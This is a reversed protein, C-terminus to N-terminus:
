ESSVVEVEIGGLLPMMQMFENTGGSETLSPTALTLHAADFPTQAPFTPDLDVWRGGGSEDEELWAQSWMHGGFVDTRGAFEEVYVMGVASRSPIGAGRLMACLLVAHESCDGERTRAVESATAFGVAMNKRNLYNYVFRRLAEAKAADSEDELGQLARDVLERVKADKHNLTTSAELHEDGPEAAPKVPSKLDVTVKATGDRQPEVRQYGADPLNLELSELQPKTRIQYVARRTQRPATLPRGTPQVMMAALVEPPNLDSKALAEDAALMTMKMGPIPVTTKLLHGDSDIFDRTQIQPMLTNSTEWVTAPVTKGFLEVNEEGVRRMTVEIPQIGMSWDISRFSAEEAGNEVQRTLHRSVEAPTMWAGDVPPLTRGQGAVEIGDDTFRYVTTTPMAGSDMTIRAEIPKGDLTEYFAQQVVVAVTVGGRRLSVKMDNTTVIGQPRTQQTLHAYGARQGMMELVFWHDYDSSDADAARLPSVSLLLLLLPFLVRLFPAHHRM